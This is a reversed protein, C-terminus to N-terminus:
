FITFLGSAILKCMVFNVDNVLTQISQTKTGYVCGAVDIKLGSMHIKAGFAALNVGTVDTKLGAVNVSRGRLTNYSGEVSDFAALYWQTQAADIVRIGSPAAVTFSGAVDLSCNGGVIEKVDGNAMLTVNGKVTTSTNGSIEEVMDGSVFEVAAGNVNYSWGGNITESRDGNVVRCEGGDVTEDLKGVIHRTVGGLVNETINGEVCREEDGKITEDHDGGVFVSRSGDVTLCQSGHIHRTHDNGVSTSHNALVVENLNCQAHLYIEECGAADEFRLENFGGGGPSSSSKITSKTRDGPLSYPPRNAGNYLCGTVIPRDPDGDVFVVTVEMGVRPLFLSGWNNGAWPQVVRVFCSSEESYRRRRDWHFQVKVRGHEDTHIEEGPAGVVTATHVGAIQPQPRTRAPRWEVSAPVCEIRNHYGDAEAGASFGGYRHEVAVVLYEGALEPQPHDFLEFLNGPRVQSTTGTAVCVVADRQHVARRLALNAELASTEPPASRYGHRDTPTEHRYDEREPELAAGNATALERASGDELELLPEPDLWGYVLTRAVTPRLSSTREFSRLEETLGADGAVLRLAVLGDQNGVSRLPEYDCTGDDRILMTEVGDVNEFRYIFGEEEILRHAFDFDTERFQVTHERVRADSVAIDLDQGYAGLGPELVKTLIEAVSMESFIRSTHRQALATLAPTITITTHLEDGQIAGDEVRAAVGTIQRQLEARSVTISIPTGLLESPEAYLHSALRLRLEFPEGLRESLHLGLVRWGEDISSALSLGM